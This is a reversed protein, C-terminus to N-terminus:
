RVFASPVPQDGSAGYGVIHSGSTSQNLYWTTTSNRFIAADTKGDGDYDGPSPTDTSNGFPFSYFSSDESRLVFWEGSSPRFFAVDTKGDGTYDGQVTKDTSVGFNVVILGASSRNMWWTGDSPRFIALDAFGDGDYDGPVPRDGTAGFTQITVGGDSSRIIYWTADSPRFVAPDDKGDGDYDAPVPIDTSNGFPFCYFSFDESRLFFWEGSSPRFFALDTKGDGTYDAPAIKDTSLGFQFVRNDGDSSRLYWWEGAAPRFISIDTKCDGDFDFPANKGSLQVAGFEFAGIDTTGGIYRNFCAGRQDFRLSNGNQDVALANSGMNIAPSGALLAHTFTAGGNNSLAAVQPNVNFLDGTNATSANVGSTNGIINYGGSDFGSRIDPGVSGSTNNAVISNQIKFRFGFSNGGSRALEGDFIGGGGLGGSNIVSNNVVTSNILQLGHSFNQIGGGTDPASNGSITTNIIRTPSNSEGSISIGGGAEGGFGNYDRVTNNSITSDIINLAEGINRVGIGSGMNGSITVRRLNVAGTSTTEMSLGGPAYGTSDNGSIVTDTIDMRAQFVNMGGISRDAINGTIQCNKIDVIGRYISIGGVDGPISRNNSVTTNRMILNDVELYTAFGGAHYASNETILSDNIIVSKGGNFYMGGGTAVATVVNNRIVMSNLTLNASINAFIAGGNGNSVDSIGNGNRLTMKNMTVNANFQPGLLFIRSANNGSITLLNAGPGNIVVLRGPNTGDPGIAIEGSTLTITRAVNFFAPDFNITDAQANTNAQTIADRLSGAGSDNANTVTFTAASISIASVILMFFATIATKGLNKDIFIKM